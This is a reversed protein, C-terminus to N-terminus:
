KKIYCIIEKFIKNNTLVHKARTGLESLLQETTVAPLLVKATEEMVLATADDITTYKTSIDPQPTRRHIDVRTNSYSMLKLKEDIVDSTLKTLRDNFLNSLNRHIFERLKKTDTNETTTHMRNKHLVPKDKAVFNLCGLVGYKNFDPITM